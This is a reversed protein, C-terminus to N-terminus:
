EVLERRRNLDTFGCRSDTGQIYCALAELHDGIILGEVPDKGLQRRKRPNPAGVDVYQVAETTLQHQLALAMAKPPVCLEAPGILEFAKRSLAHPITTMSAGELDPRHMMANLAYKALVVSHVDKSRTYGNYRNLAVDVGNEVAHIFPKLRHAPIVIDGDLFLLIDGKAAAAGSARGVDHGLPHRHSVLKAGMRKAIKETGDTSGNVVVIVETSPHVSRAQRIVGAITRKENM